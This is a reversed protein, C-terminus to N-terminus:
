RKPIKRCSAMMRSIQATTMLQKNTRTILIVTSMVMMRLMFEKRLLSKILQSIRMIMIDYRLHKKTVSMMQIAAFIGQHRISSFVQFQFHSHRWQQYRRRRWRRGFPARDGSRWTSSSSSSSSSSTSSSSSLRRHHFSFAGPALFQEVM